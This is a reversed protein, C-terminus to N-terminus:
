QIGRMMYIIGSRIQAENCKICRGKKPMAGKGKMASKVLGEITKNLNLREQWERKNGFKPSSVMINSTAHCAMCYQKYVKEGAVFTENKESHILTDIETTAGSPAVILLTLLFVMLKM